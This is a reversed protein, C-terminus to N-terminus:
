LLPRDVFTFTRTEGITWASGGSETWRAQWDEGNDSWEVRFATPTQNAATPADDNRAKMSIEFINRAQGSGFDYAIWQPFTPAGSHWMTAANDDFAKDSQYTPVGFESSASSTGSGTQDSGGSSERFELEAISTYTTGNNATVWIRWYRHFEQLKSTPRLSKRLIM